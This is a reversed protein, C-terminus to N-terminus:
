FFNTRKVKPSKRTLIVKSPLIRFGGLWDIKARFIHLLHWKSSIQDLPLWPWHQTPRASGSPNRLPLVNKSSELYLAFFTPSKSFKQNKMIKWIKRSKKSFKRNKWSKWSKWLKWSKWSKKKIKWSKWSKKMFFWFIEFLGFNKTVIKKHLITKRCRSRRFVLDIPRYYSTSCFIPNQKKKVSM